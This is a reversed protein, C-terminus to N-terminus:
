RFGSPAVVSGRPGSSPKITYVCVGELSVSMRNAKNKLTVARLVHDTCLLFIVSTKSRNENPESVRM